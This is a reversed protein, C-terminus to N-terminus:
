SKANKTMREIWKTKNKFKYEAELIMKIHNAVICNYSQLNFENLVNNMKQAAPGGGYWHLCCTSSSLSNTYDYKFYSDIYKLWDLAVNAFPYVVNCDINLIKSDPYKKHLDIISKYKSQILFSGISQYEKINVKEMAEKYLNCWFDHQNQGWLFGIPFVNFKNMLCYYNVVGVDYNKFYEYPLPKIFLVDMDCFLGGETSLVYYSIIDSVHVDSQIKALQPYSDELYRFEVGELKKLEDMYDLGNFYNFDQTEVWEFKQEIPNKRLIVVIKWDYNWFTCSKVTM